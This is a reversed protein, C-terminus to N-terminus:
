SSQQTKRKKRKRNKKKKTVTTATVNASETTAESADDHIGTWEIGDDLDDYEDEDKGDEAARKRPVDVESAGVAGGDKEFGAVFFGIGGDEVPKARVCGESLVEASQGIDDMGMFQDRWGRRHWGPLVQEREMLRWGAERVELDCLLARVVEENEEAHISCTSYVVRTVAPFATLAHKVIKFQFTALNQLRLALAADNSEVDAAQEHEQESLGTKRFIGSGSCSPDCLIKTVSEYEKPVGATFDGEEVRVDAGARKVMKKLVDAREANLEYAIVTGEGRMIAAIHTTKNGPAACADIVVDGPVPALIHAPFCSARDQLIIEGRSYASPIRVLARTDTNAIAYLDPIYPDRYLTNPPPPLTTTPTLKTSPLLSAIVMSTDTPILRNIRFWRTERNDCSKNFDTIDVIGRKIKAKSLESNLRTKHRVVADKLPGKGATIGTKSILLDHVLLLALNYKIREEDLLKAEKIVEDLVDKYRITSRLLAFVRKPDAKFTGVKEKLRRQLASFSNASEIEYSLKPHVFKSADFYLNM